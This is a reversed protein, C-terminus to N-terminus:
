RLQRIRHRHPEVVCFLDRLEEESHEEFIRLIEQHVEEVIMPMIRLLIVGTTLTKNLFVLAGFAKDRTILLRNELRAKRLLDEDGAKQM